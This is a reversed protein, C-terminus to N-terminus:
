YKNLDSEQRSEAKIKIILYIPLLVAGYRHITDTKWIAKDFDKLCCGSLGIHRKKM